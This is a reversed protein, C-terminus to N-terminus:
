LPHLNGWDGLISLQSLSFKYALLTTSLFRIDLNAIESIRSAVVIASLRTLNLILNRDTIHDGFPVARLYDLVQDVDM